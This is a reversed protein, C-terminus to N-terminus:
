FFIRKLEIDFYEMKGITVFSKRVSGAPYGLAKKFVITTTHM